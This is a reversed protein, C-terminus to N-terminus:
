HGNAPTTGSPCDAATPVDGKLSPWWASRLMTRESSCEVNATDTQQPFQREGLDLLASSTHVPVLRRLSVDCLSLVPCLAGRCLLSTHRCSVEAASASTSLCARSCAQRGAALPQRAFQDGICVVNSLDLSEAIACSSRRAFWVPDDVRRPFITVPHCVRGYPWFADGPESPQRSAATGPLEQMHGVAVEPGAAVHSPGYCDTTFWWESISM